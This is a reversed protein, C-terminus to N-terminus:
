GTSSGNTLEASPACTLTDRLEVCPIIGRRAFSVDRFASDPRGETAVRKLRKDPLLSCSQEKPVGLWTISEDCASNPSKVLTDAAGLMPEKKLFPGLLDLARHQLCTLPGPLVRGKSGWWPRTWCM